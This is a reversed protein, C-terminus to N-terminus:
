TISIDGQKITNQSNNGLFPLKPGFVHEKFHENIFLGFDGIKPGLSGNKPLLECFVMFCSSILMMHSFKESFFKPGM